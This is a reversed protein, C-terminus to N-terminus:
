LYEIFDVHACLFVAFLNSISQWYCWLVVVYFLFRDLPFTSFHTKTDTSFMLKLTIQSLCIIKQWMTQNPWWMKSCCVVQECIEWPLTIRDSKAESELYTHASPPLLNIEFKTQLFKVKSKKQSDLHKWILYNSKMESLEM